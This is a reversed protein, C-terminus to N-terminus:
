ETFSVILQQQKQKTKLIERIDMTGYWVKQTNKNKKYCITKFNKVMIRKTKTKVLLFLESKFM